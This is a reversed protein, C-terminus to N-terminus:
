VFDHQLSHAEQVILSMHVPIRTEKVLARTLGLDVRIADEFSADILFAIQAIQYDDEPDLVTSVEVDVIPIEQRRLIARARDILDLGLTPDVGSSVLAGIIENYSSYDKKMWEPSISTDAAVAAWSIVSSNPNGFAPPMVFHSVVAADTLATFDPVDTPQGAHIAASMLLASTGFLTQLSTSTM